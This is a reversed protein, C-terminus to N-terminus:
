LVWTCSGKLGYVPQVLVPHTIKPPALGLLLQTSAARRQSSTYEAVLIVSLGSDAGKHCLKHPSRLGDDSIPNGM